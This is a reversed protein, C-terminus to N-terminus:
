SGVNILSLGETGSIYLRWSSDWAMATVRGPLVAFFPMKSLTGYKRIYLWYRSL